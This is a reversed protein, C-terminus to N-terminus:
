PGVVYAAEDLTSVSCDASASSSGGAVGADVRLFQEVGLILENPPSAPKVAM